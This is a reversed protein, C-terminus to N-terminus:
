LSRMCRGAEERAWRGADMVQEMTPEPVLEHREIVMQSVRVIDTFRIQEHLFADVACENAASLVAGSTGGTRAVEYGLRLAPLAAMDPEEFELKRVAALDLRAALCSLRRPHTLAYQIPLKMDPVGLQAMMSGDTFEALSHVICQPHILVKINDPAVNFLWRAEIVELAKNMLTASDVTIKRGMEWTPHNLAQAPTVRRLQERSMGYFPGGSATIIISTIENSRDAQSVQFIASHESDVPLIKVGKAAALEMLLNGAMVLAEKNALALDRGSELASVAAPLGAGGSIASVVLDASAWGALERIGEQGCLLRVPGEGVASQLAERYRVDALAAAEPQFEAIQGALAEWRSDASLGVVRFEQPLSRVVELTNCGVSGTSGLVVIRKRM